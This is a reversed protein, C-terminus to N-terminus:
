EASRKWEVAEAPYDTIVGDCGADRLRQWDRERNPTWPVVKIDHAHLQDVLDRDVFRYAPFLWTAKLSAVYTAINVISGFVTLGLPFEVNRRALEGITTHDFSAVVINPWASVESCLVDEWKSRKVELIMTARSAFQALDAVRTLSTFADAALSEIESENLEDDHFLIPTRDSLLRLDTEFGDAGARLAEEFSAVTNEPFRKPSGRHGFILFSM